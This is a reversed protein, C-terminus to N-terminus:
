GLSMMGYLCLGKDCVYPRRGQVKVEVGCNLCYRTALTFRRCLWYFAVLGLNNHFGREIPDNKEPEPGENTPVFQEDFIRQVEVDDIGYRDSTDWNLGYSTRLQYSRPYSKLHSTLADSLFFTRVSTSSSKTPSDPNKSHSKQTM